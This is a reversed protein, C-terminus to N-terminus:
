INKREKIIYYIYNNMYHTYIYNIIIYNDIIPSNLITSIITRIVTDYM